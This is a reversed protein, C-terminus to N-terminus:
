QGTRVSHATPVQGVRTPRDEETLCMLFSPEFALTLSLLSVPPVISDKQYLPHSRVFDRIMTAVTKIEGKALKVLYEFCSRMQKITCQNTKLSEEVIKNYNSDIFKNLVQVLGIFDKEQSGVMIEELTMELVEAPGDDFLNKRFFFEQETVAARLCAREMNKWTFSMPIYFNLRFDVAEIMRALIQVFFSLLYNHAPTLQSDMTRYEVRWPIESDFSPPPKLRVDNWNSSQFAEFHNTFKSNDVDLMKKFVSVSEKHCLQAWHNLLLEDIPVEM